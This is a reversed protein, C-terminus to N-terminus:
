CRTSGVAASVAVTRRSYASAEFMALLEPLGGGLFAFGIGPLRPLEHVREGLRDRLVPRRQDRQGRELVVVVVRERVHHVHRNQRHRLRAASPMSPASSRSNPRAASICSMPLTRVGVSIRLLGSLSVSSPTRRDHLAVDDVAGLDQPPRRLNRRERRDDRELMVQPDVAAAIGAADLARRQVEARHQAADGVDVIRHSRLALVLLGKRGLADQRHQLRLSPM